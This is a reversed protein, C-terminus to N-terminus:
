SPRPGIDIDLWAAIEKEAPLIVAMAIGLKAADFVIRWTM